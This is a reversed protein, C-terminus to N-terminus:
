PARGAGDKLVVSDKGFTKQLMTLTQAEGDCWYEKALLLMIKEDQLQVYVPVNGEHKKCTSKIRDLEGRDPALLYMKQEARKALQADTLVPAPKSITKPPAKAWQSGEAKSTHDAVTRQPLHTKGKASTGRLAKPHSQGAQSMPQPHLAM